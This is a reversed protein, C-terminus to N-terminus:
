GDGRPAVARLVGQRTGRARRARSRRSLGIQLGFPDNGSTQLANAASWPLVLLISWGSFVWPSLHAIEPPPLNQYRWEFALLNPLEHMSFGIAMATLFGFWAAPGGDALIVLPGSSRRFIGLAELALALLLFCSGFFLLRLGPAAPQILLGAAITVALGILLVAALALWSAQCGLRSECRVVMRSAPGDGMYLPRSTRDHGLCLRTLSYAFLGGVPYIVAYLLVYDLGPSYTEYVWLGAIHRGLIHDTLMGLAAFLLYLRIAAIRSGSSRFASAIISSGWRREEISDVVLWTGIGLAWYFRPPSIQTLALALCAVILGAALRFEWSRPRRLRGPARTFLPRDPQPRM